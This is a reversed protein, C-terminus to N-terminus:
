NVWELRDVSYARSVIEPKLQSARPNVLFITNNQYYALGKNNPEWTYFRAKYAYYPPYELNVSRAAGNSFNTIMLRQPGDSTNESNDLQSDSVRNLYVLISSDPSTEPGSGLDYSRWGSRGSNSDGITLAQITTRQNSSAMTVILRSSDPTFNSIRNIYYGPYENVKGEPTILWLQWTTTTFYSVDGAGSMAIYRGDPSWALGRGLSSYRYDFRGLSAVRRPQSSGDAATIFLQYNGFDVKYALQKGDPSWAFASVSRDTILRPGNLMNGADDFSVVYLGSKLKSDGNLAQFALQKGDRSWATVYALDEPNGGGETLKYKQKGDMSSAFLSANFKDGVEIYVMRNDTPAINFDILKFQGSTIVTRAGNSLDNVILQRQGIGSTYVLKGANVGSVAPNVSPTSPAKSRAPEPAVTADPSGAGLLDMGCCTPSFTGGPGSMLTATNKNVTDLTELTEDFFDYIFSGAQSSLTNRGASARDYLLRRNDPMWSVSLVSDKDQGLTASGVPYYRTNGNSANVVVLRASGDSFAIQQSNPSWAPGLRLRPAPNLYDAYAWILGMIERASGDYDALKRAQNSDPSLRYLSIKDKQPDSATVALTTGDPSWAVYLMDLDTMKAKDSLSVRNSGDANVLYLNRKQSVVNTGGIYAIRKGDPSWVGALADPITAVQQLSDVIVAILTSPQARSGSNAPVPTPVEESQVPIGTQNGSTGDTASPTATQDHTSNATPKVQQPDAMINAVKLNQPATEGVATSARTFLLQQSDPSWVPNFGDQVVVRRNQGSADMVVIKRGKNYDGAAQDGNLETFAVKRGDPSWSAGYEAAASETLRGSIKGSQDVTYLDPWGDKNSLLLVRDKPLNADKNDATPTKEEGCASLVLSM